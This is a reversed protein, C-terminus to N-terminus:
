SGFQRAVPARPQLLVALPALLKSIQLLLPPLSLLQCSTCHLLAVNCCCRLVCLLLQVSLLVAAGRYL